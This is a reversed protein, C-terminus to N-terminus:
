IRMIRQEVQGARTIARAANEVIAAIGIRPQILQDAPNRHFGVLSRALPQDCFRAPDNLVIDAINRQVLLLNDPGHALAPIHHLRRIIVDLQAKHTLPLLAQHSLRGGPPHQAPKEKVKLCLGLGGNWWRVGPRM